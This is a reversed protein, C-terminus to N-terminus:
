KGGETTQDIDDKNEENSDDDGIHDEDTIPVQVSVKGTM